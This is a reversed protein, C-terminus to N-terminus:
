WLEIIRKGEKTVAARAMSTTNHRMAINGESDIGIMGGTGGLLEIESMVSTMANDINQGGYRMRSIVDHAAAVRVFYEGYGTSCVAGVGNRAYMGAGAIPTDGVRGIPKMMVGGTSNAACINGISDLAVAGVTGLMVKEIAKNNSRLIQKQEEFKKRVEDTIFYEQQVMELGAQKAVEEAGKSSFLVRPTEEMIYRAATIPSKIHQVGLVAGVRLNEGDMIGADLEVEGNENLAAGIGANFCPFEELLKVTEVVAKISSGGKELIEYGCNLAAQMSDFIEKTKKEDTTEKNRDGAGGHLALVIM